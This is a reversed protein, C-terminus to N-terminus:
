EGINGTKMPAEVERIYDTVIRVSGPTLREAEMLAQMLETIKFLSKVKIGASELNKKGGQERDVIVLATGVKLGERILDQATELVSSGSTIIDEVIVATDGHVFAGEILKKTGYSKAEKRRIIMPVNTEASIVTAIPLATYPVGCIHSYQSQDDM